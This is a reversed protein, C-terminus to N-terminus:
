VLTRAKEVFAVLNWRDTQNSDSYRSWTVSLTEYQRSERQRNDRCM